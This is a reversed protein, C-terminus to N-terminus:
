LEKITSRPKKQHPLTKKAAIHDPLCRVYQEGMASIQKNEKSSSILFQGAIANKMSHATNSFRPQAAEINLRSIDTTKFNPTNKYHTLYYALCVVREVDSRPQKELIFAKPSVSNDDNEFSAETGPPFPSVSSRDDATSVPQDFNIYTSITKFIRAQDRESLKELLGIIEGLVKALDPAEKSM